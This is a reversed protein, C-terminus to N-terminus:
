YRAKFEGRISGVYYVSSLTEIFSRYPTGAAGVEQTTDHTGDSVKVLASQVDDVGPNFTRTSSPDVTYNGVETGVPAELKVSVKRGTWNTFQFTAFRVAVVPTEQKM